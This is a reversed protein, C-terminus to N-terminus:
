VTRIQREVHLSGHNEVSIVKQDIGLASCVIEMVKGVLSSQQDHVIREPIGYSCIVRQILVEAIEEAEVTKLPVCVTYRTMACTTVMMYQYGARSKIMKKFDLSVDQFPCYTNPIREHFPRLNDTKGKLEQCKNCSRVYAVIRQFMNPFFFLKRMTLYTRVCGQHSSVVADHYRSILQDIYKEPVALQFCFKGPKPLFLLRFLVHNCLIFQESRLTIIRAAKRDGPLINHELYDYVAKFHPDCKQALRYQQVDYPLNYDRIVKRKIIKLIRNLETQQPIHKATIEQIDPILPEPKRLYEPCEEEVLEESTEQSRVRDVLTPEVVQKDRSIPSSFRQNVSSTTRKPGHSRNNIVSHEVRHQVVNESPKVTSSVPNGSISTNEVNDTNENCKEQEDLKEKEPFIPKVQINAEKAFRRTVPRESPM